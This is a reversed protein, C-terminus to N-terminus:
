SRAEGSWLSLQAPAVIRQHAQDWLDVLSVLGQRRFYAKTLTQDVVPVHSLRWISRQAGYVTGWANEPRAGLQILKRAITRKRKWQRVSHTATGCDRGDDGVCMEQSQEGGEADRAACALIPGRGTRRRREGRDAPFRRSNPLALM